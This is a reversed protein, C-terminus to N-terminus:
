RSATRRLWTASGRYGSYNRYSSYDRYERYDRYGSYDSYGRYGSGLGPSAAISGFPRPSRM